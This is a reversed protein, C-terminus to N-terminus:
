TAGNVECLLQGHARKTMPQDLIHLDAVKRCMRLTRIDLLDDPKAPIKPSRRFMKPRGLDPGVQKVQRLLSVECGARDYDGDGGEPKEVGNSEFSRPSNLVINGCATLRFLKRDNQALVFDRAKQARHIIKFVADKQGDTVRGTQSDGFGDAELGGRDIALAHDNPNVLSLPVFIAIDHQRGFQQGNEPVIPLAGTGSLPQKGTVARALRDRWGGNIAGTPLHPQLASDAFRHRRV